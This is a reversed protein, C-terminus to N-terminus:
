QVFHLFEQSHNEQIPFIDLEMLLPSGNIFHCEVWILSICCVKYITNKIDKNKRKKFLQETM